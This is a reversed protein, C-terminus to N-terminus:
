QKFKDDIQEYIYSNNLWFCQKTYERGDPLPYTDKANQGHPRVHCVRNESSSPFNDVRRGQKEEIKIGDVIVDVTQQWVKKVEELDKNPMNWFQSGQLILEHESNFKYIIFFFRTERLYNGFTSDEWNEHIM